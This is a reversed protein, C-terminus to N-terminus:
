SKGGSHVPIELTFIAGRGSGESYVSITGGLNRAALAGSHLGVGHGGKRTTFGHQFIRNLNEPPIGIGTDQVQFAVREPAPNFVRLTIVQPGSSESCAYKANHIFNLLIQLVAHRDVDIPSIDDYDRVVEVQHRELAGANMTLADEMLREPAVTEVVGYVRGYTQQMSVIEKVHEVRQYLSEVEEEIEQHEKQLVTNLSALYTPIQRGRPDESFFHELGGEPNALLEAVRGINAIRSNRVQERILNSSVNISNLVNGVNHLVGTAVEAMGATRSMELLSSQAEALDRLAQEKVVVQERLERTRERVREELSTKAEILAQQAQQRAITAGLMDAITRMSDQETETWVRKLDSDAFCLDGWLDRNVFVPATILSVLGNSLFAEKCSQDGLADVLLETVQGAVREMYDDSVFFRSGMAQFVPNKQLPSTKDNQFWEHKLYAYTKGTSEVQHEFLLVQRTNAAFGCRALIDQIVNEWHSSNLFQQAAYRVSDLITDRHLLGEAMTNVSTALSGIEDQRTADARVNFNGSAIQHVIQRLRVLPKVLQYAYLMCILLSFVACAMGLWLTQRNLRAVSQDYDQLSLGVHIWGWEIGSYDFPQVHYFVRQNLVPITAITGSVQRKEPRWFADMKQETRWGTRQSVVAFGDNKMIILFELDPDGQMLTQSASVLSAYDENIAAGSVADRLSVAVSNAKSDLNRLFTAKQQPITVAAFVVLTIIAVLWSILAIHPGIGLSVPAMKLRKIM